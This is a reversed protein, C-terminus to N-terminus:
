FPFKTALLFTTNQTSHQKCILHFSGRFTWVSFAESRIVDQSNVVVSRLLNDYCILLLYLVIGTRAMAVVDKGDM